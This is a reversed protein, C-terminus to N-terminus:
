MGALWQELQATRVDWTNARAVAQRAGPDAVGGDHLAALLAAEWQDPTDAIALVNQFPEVTQLRASVVPLGTALYEHMKLPYGARAWVDSSTRYLMVNVDMNAVYSPLFKKEKYGLFHVNPLTQCTRYAADDDPHLDNQLGMLVWQHTPQRQALMALLSFDLKRNIRGAYGIRPRPIAALDAPPACGVADAFAAYDAGNHLVRPARSVSASLEQAAYESQVIALDATELLQTEWDELQATWGATLRFLDYAQYVVYDPKLAAVYPLYIPHFLHAVLPRQPNKRLLGRWRRAAAAIALRDLVAIKPQRLLYKPPEDVTVGNMEYVRGGFSANRFPDSARDWASWLGMSYLIEHRRALRSLFQQRNMWVNDWANGALAVIRM